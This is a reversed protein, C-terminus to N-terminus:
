FPWIQSIQGKFFVLYCGQKPLPKDAAAAAAAQWESAV